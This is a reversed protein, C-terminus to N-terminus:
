YLKDYFLLEIVMGSAFHNINWDTKLARAFHTDILIQWDKITPIGLNEANSLIALLVNDKQKTKLKPHPKGVKDRYCKMYYEYTKLLETMNANAFQGNNNDNVTTDNVTSVKSNPSMPTVVRTDQIDSTTTDQIDSTVNTDSGIWEDTNENFRYRNGYRTANLEKVIIKRNCLGTVARIVTRRNYDINKGIHGYGSSDGDIGKDASYGYQQDLLYQTFASQGGTLRMKSLARLLMKTRDFNTENSM